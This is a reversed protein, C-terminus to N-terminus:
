EALLVSVAVRGDGLAELRHVGGAGHVRMAGADVELTTHEDIAVGHGGRARVVAVARTLTGWQAAHIDVCGGVLGLGAV